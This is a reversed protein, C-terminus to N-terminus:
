TNFTKVALAVGVGVMVTGAAINIIKTTRTSSLLRSARDAMCAYVLKAGGVALTAILIIISTDAPTVSSLDVFAPFFGLYFLIAKQDGLTIFLGALFSSLLSPETNNEIERSCPESRWLQIGLWILYASGMYQVLSFRSGMLEALVSLGYIALLIFIIDGIVIGITTFVGHTFGGAASRASVVLVSVSPIFALVMMSGFLAAISGPTLSSEM